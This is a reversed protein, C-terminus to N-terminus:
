LVQLARIRPALARLLRREEAEMRRREAAKGHDHGLLHLIGHVTLHAIERAYPRRAARAQRRATEVSIYIEGLFVPTARHADDLTEPEALGFSLVDTPKDSERYDRNLARVLADDALILSLTARPRDLLRLAEVVLARLTTSRLGPDKAPSAVSTRPVSV